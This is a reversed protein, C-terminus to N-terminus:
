YGKEAHYSVRAPEGSWYRSAAGAMHGLLVLEASGMWEALQLLQNALELADSLRARVLHFTWLGMLTQFLEPGEGFSTALERARLYVAEVESAAWSQTAILPGAMAVLARWEKLTREPSPRVTKLLNLVAKLHAIAEINASTAMSREAATMCYDVARGTLGAAACHLALTEPQTQKLEPDRSELIMAIQEHLQRRRQRLLSGYAADRVLAHKFYFTANPPTGQCFMLGAENLRGLCTQLDSETKREV